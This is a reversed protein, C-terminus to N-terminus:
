VSADNYFVVNRSSDTVSFFIRLILVFTFFKWLSLEGSELVVPLIYNWTPSTLWMYSEGLTRCEFLLAVKVLVFM